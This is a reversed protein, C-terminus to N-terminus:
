KIHGALGTRYPGYKSKEDSKDEEEAGCCSCCGRKKKAQRKHGIASLEIDSSDSNVSMTIDIATDDLV